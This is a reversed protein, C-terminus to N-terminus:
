RPLVKAKIEGKLHELTDPTSFPLLRNQGLIQSINTSVLKDGSMYSFDVLGIKEIVYEFLESGELQENLDSFDAVSIFRRFFKEPTDMESLIANLGQIKSPRFFSLPDSMDKLRESEKRIFDHLTVYLSTNTAYLKFLLRCIPTYVLAENLPAEAEDSILM